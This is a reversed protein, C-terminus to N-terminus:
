LLPTTIEYLVSNSLLGRPLSLSSCGLRWSTRLTSMRGDHKGEEVVGAEVIDDFDFDLM